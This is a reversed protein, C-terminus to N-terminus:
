AAVVQDERGARLRVEEPCGTRLVREREVGQVVGLPQRCADDLGELLRVAVGTRDVVSGDVEDDNAAPRGAHLDGAGQGLHDVRGHDVLERRQRWAGLHMEDIVAVGQELHEGVLGMGVRGLDELLVPDLQQHAIAHGLDPGPWTVNVSPDVILVRQTM